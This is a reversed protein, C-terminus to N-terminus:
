IILGSLKTIIVSNTTMSHALSFEAFTVGVKTYTM